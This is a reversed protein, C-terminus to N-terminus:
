SVPKSSKVGMIGWTTGTFDPRAVSGFERKCACSGGLLRHVGPRHMHIFVYIYMCMYTIKQNAQKHIDRLVGLPMEWVQRRVFRRYGHIGLTAPISMRLFRKPPSKGQLLPIM